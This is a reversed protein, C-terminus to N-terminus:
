KWGKLTEIGSLLEEASGCADILSMLERVAQSAKEYGGQKDVFGKVQKLTELTDGFGQSKGAPRSPSKAAQSTPFPAGCAANLCAPAKPGKSWKGCKKCQKWGPGPRTDAVRTDDAKQKAM